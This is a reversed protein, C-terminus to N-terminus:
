PRRGFLRAALIGLASLVFSLGVLGLLAAFYSLLWATM